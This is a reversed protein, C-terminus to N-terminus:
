APPPNRRSGEGARNRKSEKRRRKHNDRADLLLRVMDDMSMGLFFPNWNERIEWGEMPEMLGEAVMEVLVRAADKIRQVTERHLRVHTEEPRPKAM